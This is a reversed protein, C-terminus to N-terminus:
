DLGFQRGDKVVRIIQGWKRPPDTSWGAIRKGVPDEGPWLRRATIESIIVVGTSEARDQEAFVRGKLLPIGMTEFYGPSVIRTIVIPVHDPGPDPRGEISIGISNGTDTLPLSTAVSASKVGRV